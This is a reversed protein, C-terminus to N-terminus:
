WRHARGRAAARRHRADIVQDGHMLVLWHVPRVFEADYNGWRMRKPIPLRNLSQNIIDEILASLAQGQETARFVLWTGKDTEQQELADPEVGCSRAFGELARTPEGDADYAAKMSPGKREVERDPQAMPVQKILVGLRRPSAYSEVASHTFGAKGLGDIIGATFAESLKNLAKPPLEETGLEILLDNVTSATHQSM